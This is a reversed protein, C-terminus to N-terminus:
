DYEYRIIEPYKQNTIVHIYTPVRLSDVYKLAEEITEPPELPSCERWWDRSKKTHAMGKKDELFVYKYFTNMGNACFYAIKLMPVRGAKTHQKYTVKRIEYREVIPDSTAILEQTSAFTDINEEIPFVYDCHECSPSSTHSYCDCMPCLRVPALISNSVGKGKGKNPAHPLIPDNIPGIRATNGAFDMVLCNHKPLLSVFCGPAYEYEGGAWPRTGRGLMQVWLGPSQTPRLMGILDIAPHDFGTTLVNMNVMARYKGAKFDKLRERREGAPLKGHVFTATVGQKNLESAVNEAHDIGSAFLLWAQRDFGFQCMEKVAAQTKAYVNVASELDGKQYDGARTRVGSIDLLTDPNKPVLPALYGEQIFRVFDDKGTKDYCIEDFIGGEVLGGTGVRYPTATLGIVKFNPNIMKQYAIFKQYQSEAKPGILHCEDVIMLDFAEFSEINRSMSQIMGATVPQHIEKRGLGAGYLGLPCLPWLKLVKDVNQEILEKVHAAMLVRGFGMQYAQMAEMAEKILMAIIWSKGTGTPLAIVPNGSYGSNFYTFVADVAERQYWRPDFM